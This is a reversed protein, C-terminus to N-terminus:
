AGRGAEAEALRGKRAGGTRQAGAGAVTRVDIGSAEDGVPLRGSAPRHTVKEAVVLAQVADAVLRTLAGVPLAGVRQPVSVDEALHHAVVTAGEVRAIATTTEHHTLHRAVAAVAHHHRPLVELHPLGVAHLHAVRVCASLAAPALALAIPLAPRAIM